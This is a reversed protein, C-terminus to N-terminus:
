FLPLIDSKLGITKLEQQYIANSTHLLSPRLNRVLKKVSQKQFYKYFFHQCPSDKKIGVWLEHFMIHWNREGVIKKLRKGLQLPLGKTQFSYPVYQLSIWEPDAVSVAQNAQRIRVPWSLISPLRITPVNIDIDKQTGEFRRTVYKDNLSVITAQHGQRILEGALRRSYDGVGDKGQELAGCIFLVKM